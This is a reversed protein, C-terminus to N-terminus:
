RKEEKDPSAFTSYQISDIFDTFQEWIEPHKTKISMLYAKELSSVELKGNMLERELIQIRM